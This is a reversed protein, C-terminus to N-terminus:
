TVTKPASFESTNNNPDTATSTVNQGPPLFISSTFTFTANGSADTTVNVFGLYTEGQSTGTPNGFFEIRFTTSPTSNISGQITVTSVNHQASTLVPANQLDNPGSHPGGTSNATSGNNALDIGLKANSFISNGLIGDDIAADVLSVGVTVGNGSNFAIINSLVTNHSAGAAIRVGDRGNAMAAAGGANAGIVNSQILNNSTAAGTITVGDSTNGSIVNGAGTATGGVSNGSAGNSIMIGSGANALATNGGPNVGIKNGQVQNNTNVVSGAGNFWIGNAGNNSVVNGVISAGSAVGAIAPTFISGDGIYIGQGGNGLGASVSFNTGILNNLIQAGTATSGVIAIGDQGNGVIVNASSSTAGGITVNPTNTVYIGQGTNGLVSATGGFQNGVIPNITTTSGDIQLGNGGNAVIFDDQVTTLQSGGGVFIGNGVNGLDITGGVDTGIYNGIIQNGSTGSDSITFGNGGNGSICNGDLVVDFGGIINNSSGQTISVGVGTNPVVIAGLYDTGILNGIVNTGTSASTLSLGIGTNGSIVDNSVANNAANNSVIVGGGSNALAANATLITGIYDSNVVNGNTGSGSVVVGVLSNGSIVDGEGDNFGGIMNNIAAGNITVGNSNNGLAHMGTGDTGILDGYVDNQAASGNILVGAGTNGSIVNGLGIMNSAASSTIVVGNANPIAISATADTGIDNSNVTNGTTGSGSITIGNGKNGSIVNATGITNGTAQGQITIGDVSNPLAHAGTSDTGIYNGVFSNGSTGADQITVGSGTNGSITNRASGGGGLTNNIAAQSIIVGGGGNPVAASGATNTGILNGFVTNSSAGSSLTIGAGTNGSIVNGVGVFNSSAQNVISVGSGNPVAATGNANTGINNAWIQNSSTGSGTFTVGVIGNGSILNDYLTNSQAGQSVSVGGSVNPIAHAGTPDTGISNALVWNNSTGSSSISIGYAQNGSIVNGANLYGIVNGQAGGSITVGSGKNALAATGAGTTGIYNEEITNGTAFSSSLAIGPGGNGSIINRTGATTGGVITYQKRLGVRFRQRAEM